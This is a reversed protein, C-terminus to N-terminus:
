NLALSVRESMWKLLDHKTVMRRKGIKVVPFGKSHLLRYSTSMSINLAKALEEASLTAPFQEISTYYTM